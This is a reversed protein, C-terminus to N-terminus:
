GRQTRRAHNADIFQTPLRGGIKWSTLDDGLTAAPETGPGNQPWDCDRQPRLQGLLRSFFGCEMRVTASEYLM